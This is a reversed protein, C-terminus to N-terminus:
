TNEIIKKSKKHKDLWHQAINGFATAQTPSSTPPPPAKCMSQVTEKNGRRTEVNAQLKKLNFRAERERALVPKNEHRKPNKKPRQKSTTEQPSKPPSQSALPGKQHENPFDKPSKQTVKQHNIPNTFIMTKGYYFLSKRPEPTVLNPM